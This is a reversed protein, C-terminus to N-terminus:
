AHLLLVQPHGVPCNVHPPWHTSGIIVAALQPAHACAQAGPSLQAPPTHV